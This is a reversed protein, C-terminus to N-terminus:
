RNSRGRREASSGHGTARHRRRVTSHTVSASHAVGTSHGVSTSHAVGTSKAMSAPETVSAAETTRSTTTKGPGVHRRATVGEATMRPVKGKVAAVAVEEAGADAEVGIAPRDVGGVASAPHM